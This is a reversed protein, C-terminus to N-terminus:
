SITRVVQAFTYLNRTFQDKNKANLGEKVGEMLDTLCQRMKAQKEPIQVAILGEKHELFAQEQLLILGLMPRSISWTSSFEGSQVLNMMQVLMKKLPSTPQELFARVRQGDETTATRKEYFYNVVNDVAACCQMSVGTDFSLLGEEVSNLIQSLAEPTLMMMHTMHGRTALEIFQYYGKLTKLYAQLDNFPISLCLQLSLQLSQSLSQDGYLEFVGFNTYNGHLAHSFMELANGIGKYKEKYIDKFQTKQLIRTGYTILIKSAERFLLIGNPGM